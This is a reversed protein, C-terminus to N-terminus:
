KGRLLSILDDPHSKERETGLYKQDRHAVVVLKVPGTEATVFFEDTGAEIAAIAATQTLSWRSRDSNIGAISDIREM